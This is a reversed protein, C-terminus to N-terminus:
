FYIVAMHRLGIEIDRSYELIPLRTLHTVCFDIQISSSLGISIASRLFRVLDINVKINSPAYNSGDEEADVDNDAQQIVLNDEMREGYDWIDYFEQKVLPYGADDREQLINSDEEAEHSCCEVPGPDTEKIFEEFNIVNDTEVEM